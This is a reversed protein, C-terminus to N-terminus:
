IANRQRASSPGVNRPLKTIKRPDPGTNSLVGIAKHNKLSHSPGLSTSKNKQMRLSPGLM